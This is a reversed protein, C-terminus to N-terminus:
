LVDAFGKRTKQFWAFGIWAVVGGALSYLALSEVEPPTGFVVVARADRVFVALPNVIEIVSMLHEPVLHAPYFIPTMFMLVAVLIGVVHATDRLYVGVGALWWSVGMTFLVLPVQTLPFLLVTWALEANLIVLAVLLVLLSIAAHFLASGLSVWPLVELPFNVRKVYNVNGLIIGPARTVCESFVNFVILGAFLITAFEARSEDGSTGWKVRFVISFVFTYVVLMILPHLFSWLMGLLSGRYRGVVERRTLQWVLSRNRVFSTVIAWPHLPYSM